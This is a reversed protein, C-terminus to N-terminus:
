SRATALLGTAHDLALQTQLWRALHITQRTIRGTIPTGWTM